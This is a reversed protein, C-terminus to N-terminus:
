EGKLTALWEQQSGVFGNDVAVLYASLGPEGQPGQPGVEGKYTANSMSVVIETDLVKKEEDM